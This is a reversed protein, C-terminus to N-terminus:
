LDLDAYKVKCLFRTRTFGICVCCKFKCNYIQLIYTYFYFVVTFKRDKHPIISVDENQALSFM